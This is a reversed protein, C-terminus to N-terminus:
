NRRSAATSKTVASERDCTRAYPLRGSVRVDCDDSSVNLCCSLVSNNSRDYGHSVAKRNYGALNELIGM